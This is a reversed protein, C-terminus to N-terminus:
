NKVKRLIEIAQTVETIENNCDNQILVNKEKRLFNELWRKRAILIAIANQM